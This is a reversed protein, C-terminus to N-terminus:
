RLSVTGNSTRLKIPTGGRGLRGRVRGASENTRSSLDRLTRIVGNDVRIDVEADVEAPLELVIRGNSTALVVGDSGMEDISARILGNSTSADISGRHDELEIKGNSSRATLRGCTCTCCVKANSTEIDVDGVVDAVRVAGNTSRACVAARVGEICVKGNNSQVDISSGRPVHVEVHAHAHRNWKRPTEVELALAGGTERGVVRIEGVVEHAAEASEARARKAIRVLVDERDEGVVRTRGNRNEIRIRGDAPAPFTREEVCEACESWPIGGLLGRLFSGIGQGARDHTRSHSM